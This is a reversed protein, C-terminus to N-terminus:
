PSLLIHVWPESPRTRPPLELVQLAEGFTQRGPKAKHVQFSRVLCMCTFLTYSEERVSGGDNCVAGEKEPFVETRFDRRDSASAAARAGDHRSVGRCM